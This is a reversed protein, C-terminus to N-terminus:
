SWTFPVGALAPTEDKPPPRCRRPDRETEPVLAQLGRIGTSLRRNAAIPAARRDRRAPHPRRGFRRGERRTTGCRRAQQVTAGRTKGIAEPGVAVVVFAAGCFGQQEALNQQFPSPRIRQRLAAIEASGRVQRSRKPHVREIRLLAVQRGLGRCRTAPQLTPCLGEHWARARNRAV